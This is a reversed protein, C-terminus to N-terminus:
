LTTAGKMGVGPTATDQSEQSSVTTPAPPLWCSCTFCCNWAIDSPSDELVQNFVMNLYYKFFMMTLAPSRTM